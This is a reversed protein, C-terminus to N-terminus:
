TTQPPLPNVDEYTMVIGTLRRFRKFKYFRGRRYSPTPVEAEAKPCQEMEAVLPRIGYELLHKLVSLPAVCVVEQAGVERIRKAIDVAGAFSDTDTRLQHPGFLRILEARQSDTPPHRSIWSIVM